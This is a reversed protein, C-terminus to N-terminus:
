GRKRRAPKRMAKQRALGPQRTLEPYLKAFVRERAEPLTALLDDATVEHRAFVQALRDCLQRFRAEEPILLLGSGLQLVAIPAGAALTLSDRYQKPITLQGKEGLYTTSLFEIPLAAETAM